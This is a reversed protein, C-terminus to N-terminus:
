KELDVFHHQNSKFRLIQPDAWCQIPVKSHYNEVDMTAVTNEPKIKKPKRPQLANWNAQNSDNFRLSNRWGDKGLWMGIMRIIESTLPALEQLPLRIEDIQSIQGIEKQEVKKKIWKKLVIENTKENVAFTTPSTLLWSSLLDIAWGLLTSVQPQGCQHHIQLKLDVKDRKKLGIPLLSFTFCDEIAASLFFRDLSPM